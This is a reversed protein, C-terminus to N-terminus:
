RAPVPTKVGRKARVHRSDVCARSWDLLGRAGLQDLAARHLWTWVGAQCWATFYRHCTADDVGFLRDVSRWGAGTVKVYLVTAFVARPDARPRGGKPKAPERPLLQEVLDWLDDPVWRDMEM